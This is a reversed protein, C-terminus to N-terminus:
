AALAADIVDKAKKKGVDQAKICKEVLGKSLFYECLEDRANYLAIDESMEVTIDCRKKDEVWKRNSFSVGYKQCIREIDGVCSKWTEFDGAVLEFSMDLKM